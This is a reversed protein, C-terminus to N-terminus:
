VEFYHTYRNWENRETGKEVGTFKNCNHAKHDFGSLAGKFLVWLSKKEKEQRGFLDLLVRAPVAPLAHVSLGPGQLHAGQVQPVSYLSLLM